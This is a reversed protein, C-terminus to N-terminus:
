RRAAFAYSFMQLKAAYAQQKALAIADFAWHHVELAKLSCIKNLTEAMASPAQQRPPTKLWELHTM